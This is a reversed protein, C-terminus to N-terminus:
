SSIMRMVWRMFHLYIKFNIKLRAHTHSSLKLQELLSKEIGVTFVDPSFFCIQLVFDAFILLDRPLPVCGDLLVPDNKLAAATLDHRTM